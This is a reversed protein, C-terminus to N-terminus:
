PLPRAPAAPRPSHDIEQGALADPRAPDVRGDPRPLPYQRHQNVPWARQGGARLRVHRAAHWAPQGLLLHQSQHPHAGDASQGSLLPLHPHPAPEASLLGGGEGHRVSLHGAQRWLPRHGLRAASFPRQSFGLDRRHHQCFLGAAAGLRHRVSRQWGPHAPQRRAPLPRHEACLYARVAPQGHCLPQRGM